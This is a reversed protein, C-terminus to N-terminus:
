VSLGGTNVREGEKFVGESVEFVSKEAISPIETADTTTLFIQSQTRMLYSMFRKQKGHDLESLVDDLLLIPFVEHAAYHLRIHAMKFALIIARQQGQSCYFRADQDNFNFQVDHKHPGVLSLGLSVERLRLESWRKYMANLILEESYERISEGSIVYNVSIDGYHDDMINLFEELLLPRIEEIAKLRYITLQASKIFFLHTISELLSQDKKDLQNKDKLQKLLTNKQKHLRKVESELKAFSPYIGVCLDDILDRRKQASDKVIMLSEPSFLVSPFTKNLFPASISKENHLLKKRNQQVQMSVSHSLGKRTLQTQIHFGQYDGKHILSNLDSTRFSKGHTLLFISEILNTKGQGNQGRLVNLGPHFTIDQDKINRFQRLHIKELKM